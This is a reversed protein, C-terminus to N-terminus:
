NKNEEVGVVQEKMCTCVGAGQVPKRKTQKKVVRKVHSHDIM